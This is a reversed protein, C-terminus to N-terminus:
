PMACTDAGTDPIIKQVYFAQEDRWLFREEGNIVITFREHTGGFRLDRVHRHNLVKDIQFCRGDVFIIEEPTVTGDVSITARVTVYEKERRAIGQVM